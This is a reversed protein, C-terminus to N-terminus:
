FKMKPKYGKMQNWSEAVSDYIKKQAEARKKFTSRAADLNQDLTEVDTIIHSLQKTIDALDTIAMEVEAVIDRSHAEIEHYIEIQREQSEIEASNDRSEDARLEAIRVRSDEIDITQLDKCNEAVKSLNKLASLCMLEAPGLFQEFEAKESGIVSDLKEKFRSFNRELYDVQKAARDRDLGNLEDRLRRTENRARMALAKRKERQFERIVKGRNKFIRIVGNGAGAAVGLGVVVYLLPDLGFLIEVFGVGLGVVVPYTTAWHYLGRNMVEKNAADSSFDDFGISEKVVFIVEWNFAIRLWFLSWELFVERM